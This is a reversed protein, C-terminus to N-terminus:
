GEAGKLVLGGPLTLSEVVEDEDVAVKTLKGESSPSKVVARRGGPEGFRPLIGQQDVKSM